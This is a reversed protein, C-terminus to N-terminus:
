ACKVFVFVGFDIIQILKWEDEQKMWIHVHKEYKKKKKEYSCNLERVPNGFRRDKSCLGRSARLM